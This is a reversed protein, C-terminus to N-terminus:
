ESEKKVAEWYGKKAGCSELELKTMDWKNFVDEWFIKNKFYAMEHMAGRNERVYAYIGGDNKFRPMERVEKMAIGYERDEKSCLKKKGCDAKVERARIEDFFAIVNKIHNLDGTYCRKEFDVLDYEEVEAKLKQYNEKDDKPIWAGMSISVLGFAMLIGFVLKKM